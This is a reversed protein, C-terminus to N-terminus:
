KPQRQNSQAQEAGAESFGRSPKLGGQAPGPRTQGGGLKLRQEWEGDSKDGFM